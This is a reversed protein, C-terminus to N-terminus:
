EEEPAMLKMKRQRDAKRQRERKDADESQYGNGEGGRKETKFRSSFKTLVKNRNAM